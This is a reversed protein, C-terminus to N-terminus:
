EPMDPRPGEDEDEVDTLDSERAMARLDRIGPIRDAELVMVILVAAILATLYLGLGTLLGVVAAAWTSAATTLGRTPGMTGRWIIGVGLFGIGTAVGAVIQGGTLPFMEAAVGAFGAASAAVLAFTREGATKGRAQRELGIAFGFAAALAIRGAFVLQTLLGIHNM